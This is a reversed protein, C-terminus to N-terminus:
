LKNGLQKEKLLYPVSTLIILDRDLTKCKEWYIKLIFLEIELNKKIDEMGLVLKVKGISSYSKRYNLM